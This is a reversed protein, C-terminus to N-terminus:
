ECEFVGKFFGEFDVFESILHDSNVMAYAYDQADGRPDDVFELNPEKKKLRCLIMYLDLNSISNNSTINYAEGEFKAQHNLNLLSKATDGVYIWERLYEGTGHMTFTNDNDLCDIIKPVLKTKDQHLGFNNCLRVVCYRFSPHTSKVARLMFEGSAKSAAYPNRPVLKDTTEFRRCSGKEIHGYVEDTSIHIMPIGHRACYTAVEFTGTINTDIFPHADEISKGVHTEAAFHYCVGPQFSFSLSSIDRIDTTYQTLRETPWVEQLWDSSVVTQKDINAVAETYSLAHHIFHSGIFGNGGTVLIM